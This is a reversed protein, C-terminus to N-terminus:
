RKWFRVLRPGLWSARTAVAVQQSIRSTASNAAQDVVETGRTGGLVNNKILSRRSAMLCAMHSGM